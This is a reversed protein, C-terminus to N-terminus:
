GTFRRYTSGESTSPKKNQITMVDEQEYQRRVTRFRVTQDQSELHSKSGFGPSASTDATAIKTGSICMTAAVM